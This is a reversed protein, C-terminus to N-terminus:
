GRSIVGEDVLQALIRATDLRSMGSVAFLDDFSVTGDIQALVFGARHDLNLWIVEDDKLKVKPMAELSGLKSEYMALLTSESKDRLATVAPDNPAVAQAKLILEMAGSHDDLELLERAGSLLTEVDTSTYDPAAASEQPADGSLLDLAAADAATAPAEWAVEANAGSLGSGTNTPWPAPQGKLSSDTPAVPFPEPTPWRWAEKSDPPLPSAPVPAAPDTQPEGLVEDIGTEILTRANPTIVTDHIALEPSLRSPSSAPPRQHLPAPTGFQMTPSSKVTQGGPPPTGFQMTPSSIPVRAVGSKTTPLPTGFSMTPSSIIPEGIGELSVEVTGGEDEGGAVEIPIADEDTAFLPATKPPASASTAAQYIPPTRRPSAAGDGSLRISSPGSSVPMREVPASAALQENGRIGSVFGTALGWDDITSPPALAAPRSFPNAVPPPKTPVPTPAKPVSSHSQAVLEKAKENTPDLRLAQEFLRRAGDQDGSLRLWIGAELLQQAREASV